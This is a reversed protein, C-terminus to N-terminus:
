LLKKSICLFLTSVKMRKNFRELVKQITTYNLSIMSSSSMSTLASIKAAKVISNLKTDQERESHKGAHWHTYDLNYGCQWASLFVLEM